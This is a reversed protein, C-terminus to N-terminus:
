ESRRPPSDGEYLMTQRDIMNSVMAWRKATQEEIYVKPDIWIKEGTFPVLTGVSLLRAKHGFFESRSAEAQMANEAPQFPAMPLTFFIMSVFNVFILVLFIGNGVQEVVKPFHVRIQSLRNTVWNLLFFALSFLLWFCLYDYLFVGGEWADMLLGAVLEYYNFAILSAFTINSCCIANSWLGEQLRLGFIALPVAIVFIVALGALTYAIADEM